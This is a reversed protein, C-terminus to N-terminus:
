ATVYEYGGLIIKRVEDALSTLVALAREREFDISNPVSNVDIVLGAAHATKVIPNATASQADVHVTVMQMLQTQWRCLRNIPQGTDGAVAPVNLQLVLDTSSGPVQLGGVMQVFREAAEAPGAVHEILNVIIALRQAPQFDLLRLAHGVLTGLAADLDAILPPTDPNPTQDGSMLVVDYRGPMAGVTVNYEGVIGAATSQLQPAGPPAQQYNQPPATFLKLWPQLADPQGPKPATFLAFQLSQACWVM